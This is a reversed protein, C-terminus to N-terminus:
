HCPIELEELKALFAKFLTTLANLCGIGSERAMGAQIFKTAGRLSSSSAGKSGEDVKLAITSAKSLEISQAREM